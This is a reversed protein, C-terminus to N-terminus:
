QAIAVTSPAKRGVCPGDKVLFGASVLDNRIKRACSYTTLVGNKKMKARIDMLFGLDWLKPAKKLSFPDLFVLDFYGNELTNIEQLVDGIILKIHKSSLTEAVEKIESYSEFKPNVNKINDIIEKDIEIGIIECDNFYDLAAASNYGLGFCIDLIKPNKGLFDKCPKVFKEFSEEVAGSQSHYTEQKDKNFFTYSGDLTKIKEM